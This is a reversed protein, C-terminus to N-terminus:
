AKNSSKDTPAHEISHDGGIGLRGRHGAPSSLEPSLFLWRSAVSHRVQLIHQACDKETDEAALLNIPAIKFVIVEHPVECVLV